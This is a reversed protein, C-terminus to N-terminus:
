NSVWMVSFTSNFNTVDTSGAPTGTNPQWMVQPQVYEGALLYYL